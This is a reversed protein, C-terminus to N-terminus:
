LIDLDGNKAIVVDEYPGVVKRYFEFNAGTLAGMIDNCAQYRPTYEGSSGKSNNKLYLHCISTILYNLEGATSPCSEKVEAIAADFKTRDPQAIYPM